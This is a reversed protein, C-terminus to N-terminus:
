HTAFFQWIAETANLGDADTPWTHGLGDVTIYDVNRGEPCAAISTVIRGAIEETAPACSLATRWGSLVEAVPAAPWGSSGDSGEAPVVPDATGHIHLVSVAGRDSCEVMQNGAVPAVAAFRDSECALRYSM